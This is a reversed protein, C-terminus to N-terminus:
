GLGMKSLADGLGPINLGGAVEAMAEASKEKAKQLAQNVASCVLEELMEADGDQLLTPDIAVSIIKMDGSAVVRVMDGGAAGDVRLEAIRNKIEAMRGQMQQAQQMIAGLNKLNQLM